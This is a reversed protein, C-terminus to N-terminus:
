FLIDPDTDAPVKPKKAQQEEAERFALSMFKQAKSKIPRPRPM